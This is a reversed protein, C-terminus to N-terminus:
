HVVLIIQGDLFCPTFGLAFLDQEIRNREHFAKKREDKNIQKLQANHLREWENVKSRLQDVNISQEVTVPEENIAM